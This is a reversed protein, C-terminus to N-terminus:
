KQRSQELQRCVRVTSGESWGRTWPAPRLWGIPHGRHWPTLGVGREGGLAAELYAHYLQYLERGDVEVVERGIVEAQPKGTWELFARNVFRYRQYADIYCVPLGLANLKRQSLALLTDRDVLQHSFNAQAPHGLSLPM